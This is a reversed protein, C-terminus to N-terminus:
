RLHDLISVDLPPDNDALTISTDSHLVLIREKLSRPLTTFDHGVCILFDRWHCVLAPQQRGPLDQLMATASTIAEKSTHLGGVVITVKPQMESPVGHLQALLNQLHAVDWTVTFSRQFLYVSLLCAESHSRLSEHMFIIAASRKSQQQFNTDLVSLPAAYENAEQSDPIEIEEGSSAVNLQGYSATAVQSDPVYLVSSGRYASGRHQRVTPTESGPRTSRAKKSIKSIKSTSGPQQSQGEWRLRAM